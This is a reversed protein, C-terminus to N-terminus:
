PKHHHHLLTANDKQVEMAMGDGKVQSNKM